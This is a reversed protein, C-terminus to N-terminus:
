LTDEIELNLVTFEDRLGLLDERASQNLLRGLSSIWAQANEQVTYALPALNLRIVHENKVLPEMLVEQYVKAYFQLKDDYLVCSPKKAAFKEMAVAKDLKWMPCYRKWSSLYRGLSGLLRQLNQSVAMAQESIQPQQCVDQYFSFTHLEDEGGVRQPPCEMCTGHMWRMFRKTGDPCNRVCSMILKYVENSKPQLLIEPASLITEIQFLPTNGMLAKNFLQFNRLVMQVLSDFVKREWYAYYKAMHKSKGTSTHMILSEMKTLIPGIATYKRALVNLDKTREHEIVECFDKVGRLETSTEPSPFKFLNAMEMAQLKSDIERENRQVPVVLSEFKTTAQIGRNIFESIGLSNWNLMKSGFCMVKRLEQIHEELLLCQADNLSDMLSHYRHLLDTLGDMYRFVSTVRMQLTTVNKEHKVQSGTVDASDASVVLINRKMLLPLTKETEDRWLEYKQVEYARMRKGVELYKEKAEKGEESDLMEGMEQFCLIPSKIRRFLLREWSIAGAVPPQNNLPPLEKHADFNESIMDVEKCYQALIDNFKKMMQNNLAERSRIHKFKLLMEFAATASRLKKFSQDIFSIAEEEFAKTNFDQMIVNWSSRNLISFPLFTVEQIPVALRGVRRLVDDIRKPDGTVAKLEPGFINSFEELTQLVYDLDQCISAMYDTKEFLRKRDFEWRPDRASTEIKARVEFYCEKWQDLVRKGSQVKAKAAEREDTFLVRVDVVRKVRESLEWAIREMLPVMREDTNYHSSIIWVLRLSNMIQPTTDLIVGFDVGTALNKFSRELTSLFRVNQVAEVHYSTLEAVSLELNQVTVPDVETLLAVIKKAIPLNIQESLASLIASRERWFDIEAMPGPAQPKKKLQEEIIITIQAQWNMVCQELRDVVEPNSVLVDVKEELDMEPIHLKIRGDLQELTRNIHGLFKHTSNLLEDRMVVMGRSERPREGESPGGGPWGGPPPTGGASATANLQSVALMPIYVDKLMLLASQGNLTGIEMVRPMLENAECMDVPEVVTEQTNRLFYLLSSTMFSQPIHNVAVHLELHYVVQVDVEVEEERVGKHFFLASASEEETVKNLFTIIKQEDEGDGRSLLGEFCDPNPLYLYSFIRARIWEVRLDDHVM